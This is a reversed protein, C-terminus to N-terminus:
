DELALIAEELAARGREIRVRTLLIGVYLCAFASVCFWLPEAMIPPLTILVNTSPHM